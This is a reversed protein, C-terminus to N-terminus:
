GNVTDAASGTRFLITNDGGGCNVTDTGPGADLIDNGVGGNLTDNGAGGYLASGLASAILTDNGPGGIATEINVGLAISVNGTRGGINSFTGPILDILQNQSFS